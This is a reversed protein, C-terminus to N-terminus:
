LCILGLANIINYLYSYLSKIEDFVIQYKGMEQFRTLQAIETLGIPPGSTIHKDLSGVNM